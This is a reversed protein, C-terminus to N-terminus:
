LRYEINTKNQKYKRQPFHKHEPAWFDVFVAILNKYINYTLHTSFTGIGFTLKTMMPAYRM